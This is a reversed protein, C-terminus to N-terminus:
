IGIVVQFVKSLLQEKALINELEKETIGSIEMILLCIINM